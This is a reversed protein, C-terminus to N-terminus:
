KEKGALNEKVFLKIAAKCDADNNARIGAAMWYAYKGKRLLKLANKDFGYRFEIHHTTSPTDPYLLFYTFEDQNGDKSKYIEVGTHHDKELLYYTHLFLLNGKKDTASITHGKFVFQYVGQKFHCDFQYPKSFDMNDNGYEGFKTIAEAGIVTGECKNKMTTVADAAKEKGTFKEAEALWLTNWKAANAGQDSFFEYFTGEMQPLLDETHAPENNKNGQHCATILLGSLTCIVLLTFFLRKKM